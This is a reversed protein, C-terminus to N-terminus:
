FNICDNVIRYLNFHDMLMVVCWAIQEENEM